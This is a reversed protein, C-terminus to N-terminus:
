TDLCELYSLSITLFISEEKVDDSGMADKKSDVATFASTYEVSSSPTPKSVDFAAIDDSKRQAALMGDALNMPYYCDCAHVHEEKKSISSSPESGGLEM